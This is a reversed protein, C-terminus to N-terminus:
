KGVELRRQAARDTAIALRQQRLGRLRELVLRMNRARMQFEALVAVIENAGAAIDQAAVLAQSVYLSPAAAHTVWLEDRHKDADTILKVIRAHAAKRLAAEETQLDMEIRDLEAEIKDAETMGTTM